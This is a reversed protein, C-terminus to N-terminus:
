HASAAMGCRVCDATIMRHILCLQLVVKPEEDRNSGNLADRQSPRRLEKTGVAGTQGRGIQIGKVPM